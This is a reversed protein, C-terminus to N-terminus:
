LAAGNCQTVVKSSFLRRESDLRALHVDVVTRIHANCYHYSIENAELAVSRSGSLFRCSLSKVRSHCLISNLSSLFESVFKQALFNVPRNSHLTKYGHKLQRPYPRSPHSGERLFCQSTQYSSVLRRPTSSKLKIDTKRHGRPEEFSVGILLARLCSVSSSISLM